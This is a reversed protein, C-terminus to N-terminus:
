HKAKDAIAIQSYKFFTYKEDLSLNSTYNEQLEVIALCCIFGAIVLGIKKFGKVIDSYIVYQTKSYEKDSNIILTPVFSYGERDLLLSKEFKGTKTFYVNSLLLTKYTVFFGKSEIKSELIKILSNYKIVDIKSISLKDRLSYINFEIDTLRKINIESEESILSLVSNKMSTIKIKGNESVLTLDVDEILGPFYVTSDKSYIFLKLGKIFNEKILTVESNSVKIFLENDSSNLNLNVKSDNFEVFSNHFDIESVTLNTLDQFQLIKQNDIKNFLSLVESKPNEKNENWSISTFACLKTRYFSFKMMQKLKKVM